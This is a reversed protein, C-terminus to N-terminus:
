AETLGDPWPRRAPPRPLREEITVLRREWAAMGLDSLLRQAATLHSLSESRSAGRPLNSRLDAFEMHTLALEPLAQTSQAVELAQDLYSEAQGWQGRLISIAGLLRPLLVVWPLTFLLGTQFVEQLPEYQGEALPAHRLLVGTEAMLVHVPLSRIDPRFRTSVPALSDVVSDPDAGQAAQFLARYAQVIRPLQTQDGLPSVLFRELLEEAEAFRGVHYHVAVMLPLLSMVVWINPPDGSEQLSRAIFQLAEDFRGRILAAMATPVCSYGYEAPDRREILYKVDPESAPEEIQRFFQQAPAAREGADDLRGMSALALASRSQAAMQQHRTTQAMDIVASFHEAAHRMDLTSLHYFGSAIHARARLFGSGLEEALALAEAAAAGAQAYRRLQILNQAELEAIRARLHKDSRSPDKAASLADLAELLQPLPRFTHAEAKSLLAAGTEGQLGLGRYLDIAQDYADLSEDWRGQGRCVQGLKHLIAARENAPVGPPAAAACLAATYHLEAEPYAKMRLALDGAAGSTAVVRGADALGGASRYHHALDSTYEEGAGAYVREM